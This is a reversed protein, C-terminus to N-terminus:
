SWRGQIDIHWGQSETSFSEETQLDLGMPEESLQKSLLGELRSFYETQVM